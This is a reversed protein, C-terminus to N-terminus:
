AKRVMAKSYKEPNKLVRSEFERVSAGHKKAAATFTGRKSPKIRIKGNSYGPLKGNKYEENGALYIGAGAAPVSTAAQKFPLIDPWRWDIGRAYGLRDIYRKAEAKAMHKIAEDLDEGLVGKDFYTM